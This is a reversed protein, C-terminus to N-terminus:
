LFREAKRARLAEVAKRVDQSRQKPIVLLADGSDVVVMDTLGVVAVPRETGLVVCGQCDIVVPGTGSVVNGQADAPRVEPLAEFSGVDSWGFEAPVVAIDSAKEMVGYDISTSPLKPFVKALIRPYSQTRLAGRLTDLGLALEPMHAAIAQLMVDARFIFIGGNWLYDGRQLYKRATAADPKEVFAAVKHSQALLPAGVKIYGYGTEPRSPKIGLTVLHGAQAVEAAERLLQQFRPVDAVHHDSPLVVVIGSADRAAVHLTALGIAPATNRAAPEVIVNGRPLAKLLTRVSKEHAKGCVVFTDKPAALGKMRRFTEVILPRETALALFQKPRKSRSLPWFRTGSGGAMIVPYVKM